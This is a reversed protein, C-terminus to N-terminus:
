KIIRILYKKMEEAMGLRVYGLQEVVRGLEQEVGLQLQFALAMGQELVLYNMVDNFRRKFRITQLRITFSIGVRRRSDKLRHGVHLELGVVM